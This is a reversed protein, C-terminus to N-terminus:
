EFWTASQCEIFKKSDSTPNTYEHILRHGKVEKVLAYHWRASKLEQEVFFMVVDGANVDDSRFWKLRPVFM